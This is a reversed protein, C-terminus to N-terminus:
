GRENQLPPETSLLATDPGSSVPEPPAAPGGPASDIEELSRGSTSVGFVLVVVAAAGLVSMVMVFVGGFGLSPYAAGILIPATIGGIRGFASASGMGTARLRTGYVEPTYAYLGAYCGNMFFSLMSGFALVAGESSSQSLLFASVTGGILYAAITIRRSLRENLYAASYYGPVQALTIILSYTFSTTINMGRAVLLSPIWTFFGYFSFTVSLWLLWIVATRRANGHRWLDLHQFLPPAKVATSTAADSPRAKTPVLRGAELGRVIEEAEAERGRTLLWRPSEPLVRRWWILMVVPLATILQAIRWGEHVNVVVTTGIIAAAVYGLAFFGAVAGVFFGRRKKPIFEAIFTPVIAGEAGLGIGAIVRMVFFFQWDQSFAAVITACTYVLLAYMMVKRRGIRDGLVGASIAGILIGILLSSGILGTQAGDLHWLPKIIPMLYSILSGDMADFLLGLGGIVALQIHPKKVPMNDMRELLSRTM